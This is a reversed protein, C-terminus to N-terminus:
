GIVEMNKLEEEVYDLKILTSSKKRIRSHLRIIHKTQPHFFATRSGSTKGTSIEDYGFGRLLSKLEDYTFDKPKALFRDLLKEFKGM